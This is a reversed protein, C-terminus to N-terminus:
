GGKNQDQSKILIQSGSLSRGIAVGFVAVTNVVRVAFWFWVNGIVGSVQIFNRFVPFAQRINPLALPRTCRVIWGRVIQFAM